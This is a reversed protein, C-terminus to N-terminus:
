NSPNTAEPERVKPKTCAIWTGHAENIHTRADFQTTAMLEYEWNQDVQKILGDITPSIMKKWLRSILLNASIITHYIITGIHKPIGRPLMFLVCTQPSDLRPTPLMKRLLKEWTDDPITHGLEQHWAQKIKDLTQTQSIILEQYGWSLTKMLKTTGICHKEFYTM